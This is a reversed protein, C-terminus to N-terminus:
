PNGEVPVKVWKKEELKYLDARRWTVVVKNDRLQKFTGQQQQKHKLEDPTLDDFLVLGTALAKPGHKSRNIMAVHAAAATAMCVRYTLRKTTRTTTAAASSPMMNNNSSSSSSSSSSANSAPAEYAVGTAQKYSMADQRSSSPSSSSTTPPPLSPPTSTSNNSAEASTTKRTLCTIQRIDNPSLCGSSSAATATCLKEAIYMPHQDEPIDDLSIQVLVNKKKDDLLKREEKDRLRKGVAVEKQLLSVQAQLRNITEDQQTKTAQAAAETDKLRGDLFEVADMLKAIQNKLELVCQPTGDSNSVLSTQDIKSAPAKDLLDIKASGRTVPKSATGTALSANVRKPNLNTKPNNAM